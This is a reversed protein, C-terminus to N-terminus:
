PIAASHSSGRLLQGRRSKITRVGVTVGAAAADVAEPIASGAKEADGARTAARRIAAHKVRRHPPRPRLRRLHLPRSVVRDAAVPRVSGEAQPHEAAPVPMAEPGAVAADPITAAAAAVVAQAMTMAVATAAGPRAVVAGARVRAAPLPMMM